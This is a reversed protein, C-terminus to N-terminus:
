ATSGDQAASIVTVNPVGAYDARNHTALPLGLAVATAAIWADAVEIRLGARQAAHRVAAWQRCLADDPPYVVFNHLHARMRARRAAGWNRDLAWQEIEALSMFSIVRPGRSLYPRYFEARTDNRFLFSLVDTDVVAGRDPATM